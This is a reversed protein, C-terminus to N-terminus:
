EKGIINTSITNLALKEETKIKKIELEIQKIRKDYSNHTTSKMHKRNKNIEKIKCWLDYASDISYNAKKMLKLGVKDAEQEEFRSSPLIIAEKTGAEYTMVFPIIAIPNIIGAIVAGIGEIGNLLTARNIRAEGHKLVVHAMEHSLITALQADNKAAKFVGSTMIIHGNPFCTANITDSEVLTFKWHFNHNNIVKALKKGVRNMVEIKETDESLKTKNLTQKLDKKSVKKEKIFNANKKSKTNKTSITPTHKACGSILITLVVLYLTNKM